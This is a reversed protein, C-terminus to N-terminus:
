KESIIIMALLYVVSLAALATMGCGIRPRFSFLVCIVRIPRIVVSLFLDAVSCARVTIGRLGSGKM